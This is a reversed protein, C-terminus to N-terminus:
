NLNIYFFPICKKFLHLGTFLIWYDPIIYIGVTIIVSCSPHASRILNIKAGQKHKIYTVQCHKFHFMRIDMNIFLILINVERILKIVKGKVIKLAFIQVYWYLIYKNRIELRFGTNGVMRICSLNWFAKNLVKSM